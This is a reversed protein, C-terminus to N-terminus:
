VKKRGKRRQVGLLGLLGIGMLLLTAPEPVPNGPGPGPGGSTEIDLISSFYLTYEPSYDIGATGTEPDTQSLYFDTAPPNYGLLLSITATENALLTFNWGMAMSVDYDYDQPPFPVDNTNSLTNNITNDYIDGYPEDIEWSQGVASTGVATGFENYYTNLGEDLEHDFFAIFSHAGAESTTWSLTGLGTGEGWLDDFDFASHDLDPVNDLENGGDQYSYTTGDVNFAWDWLSPVARAPLVGLAFFALAILIPYARIKKKM